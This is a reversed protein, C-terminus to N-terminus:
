VSFRAPTGRLRLPLSGTIEGVLDPCKSMKGPQRGQKKEPAIEHQNDVARQQPQAIAKPRANACAAVDATDKAAIIAIVDARQARGQASPAHVLLVKEVNAYVGLM